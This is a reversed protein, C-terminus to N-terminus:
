FFAFSAKGLVLLLMASLPVTLNDYGKHSVGEAVSTVAAIILALTLGELPRAEEAGLFLLLGLVLATSFFAFSGSLTKTHGLVTYRGRPWRKGVLAAMPDCIALILIPLYYFVFLAFHEYALYCGFVVMPYLLSGFTERDVGNISRLLGWRMSLLLILLFSSCLFLVHWHDKLAFPFSLTLLGTMIHVYKRTIEAKFRRKHHLWEASAFLVLFALALLATNLM